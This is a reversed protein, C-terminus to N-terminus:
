FSTQPVLRPEIGYKGSLETAIRSADDYDAYPGVQVVHWERNREDTMSFSTAPYGFRRLRELVDRANDELSFSGVQVAIRIPLPAPKPAAAASAPAPVTGKDTSAPAAAPKTEEVPVATGAVTTKTEPMPAAAVAPPPVVTKVEPSKAAVEPQKLKPVSVAPPKVEPLKLAPKPIEPRAWALPGTPNSGVLLGAAFGAVSVLVGALTLCGAIIAAQKTTLSFEFVKSM